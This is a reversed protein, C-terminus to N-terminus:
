STFPTDFPECCLLARSSSADTSKTVNVSSSVLFESKVPNLSHASMESYLCIELNSIINKYEKYKVYTEELDKQEKSLKKLTNYDALVEPDSLKTTLEEYKETVADLREFM